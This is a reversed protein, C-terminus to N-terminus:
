VIGFFFFQKTDDSANQRHVRQVSAALNEQHLFVFNPFFTGFNCRAYWFAM